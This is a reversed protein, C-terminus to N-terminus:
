LPDFKRVLKAQHRLFFPKPGLLGLRIYKPIQNLNVKTALGEFILFNTHFHLPKPCFFGLFLKQNLNGSIKVNISDQTTIKFLFYGNLVNVVRV